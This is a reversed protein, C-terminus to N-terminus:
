LWRNLCIPFRILVRVLRNCFLMHDLLSKKKLGKFHKRLLTIEARTQKMLSRSASEKHIYYKGLIGPHFTFVVKEQALKMWLDYDEVTALEPNESFGGVKELLRKSVTMASTSMRNGRFLLSRYSSREVPGYFVKKIEKEDRIWIEGNCIAEAGQEIYRNITELKEPLWEDDSDLFAIFAAKSNKIGLNRSAGIVGYNKFSQVIIRPDNFSKIVDMSADTSYNDIVIAEWNKFTQNVISSLARRLLPESNYTPVVISIRPENSKLTM